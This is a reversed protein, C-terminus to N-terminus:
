KLCWCYDDLFSVNWGNQYREKMIRIDQHFREVPEESMIEVTRPSITVTSFVTHTINM